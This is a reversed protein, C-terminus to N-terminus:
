ISGCDCTSSPVPSVSPTSIYFSGFRPFSVILFPRAPHVFDGQLIAPRHPRSPSCCKGSHMAHLLGRGEVLVRVCVCVFLESVNVRSGSPSEAGLILFVGSILSLVPAVAPPPMHRIPNPPPHCNLVPNINRRSCPFLHCQLIVHPPPPTPQFPSYIPDWKADETSDTRGGSWWIILSNFQSSPSRSSHLGLWQQWCCCLGVAM